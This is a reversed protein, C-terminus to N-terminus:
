EYRILYVNLLSNLLSESLMKMVFKFDREIVNGWGEKWGFSM